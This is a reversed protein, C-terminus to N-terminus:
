NTKAKRKNELHDWLKPADDEPGQIEPQLFVLLPIQSWSEVIQKIEHCWKSTILDNIMLAAM